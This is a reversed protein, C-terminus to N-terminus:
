SMRPARRRRELEFLSAESGNMMFSAADEGPRLNGLPAYREWRQAARARQFFPLQRDNGPPGGSVQQDIRFALMDLVLCNRVDQPRKGPAIASLYCEDIAAIVGAMGQRDSAFTYRDVVFDIMAAAAPTLSERGTVMRGPQAGAVLPASPNSMQCATLTLSLLAVGALREFSLGTKM